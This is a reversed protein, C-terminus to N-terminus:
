QRLDGRRMVIAIAQARTRAGLKQMANRIHTRVTDPSLALADAIQASTSGLAVFALIEL